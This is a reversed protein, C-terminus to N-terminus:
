SLLEGIEQSTTNSNTGWSAMELGMVRMATYGIRTISSGNGDIHLGTRVRGGARGATFVPVGDIAHTRALSHDTNATVLCNDLLTGDGERVKALAEVFYALSDMAQQTFWSATPQYGLQDDIREEHTTTHHPKEYGVKIIGSKSDSYSMNFVRTQDCALAMVMLDTMMRHRAAVLDTASGPPPGEKPPPMPRCAAIPEPKTLQQDFQRELARLGTFYQDLRARDEAGVQQHLMKTEELVGSLVSKRVMVKPDPEFNPSNPDQFGPGFLRMYFNLPSWEAANPSNQNEYSFTTRVDGTATATLNQFRTSRGIKKAITFDYTEGPKDGDSQPAIGTRAIVWATHHCLNPAADKFANFNSFLNLHEKVRQLAAIEEPLQWNAGFQKPTFVKANMGCGWFWTGFRVPMSQGSALATGSENLFCNLMPLAVSVACGNLMGRLVRRRSLTKM